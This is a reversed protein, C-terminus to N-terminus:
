FQALIENGGKNFLVIHAAQIALKEFEEGSVQQKIYANKNGDTSIVGAHLSLTNDKFTSYAFIPISCGGGLKELFLRETHICLATNEHNLITKFITKQPHQVTTQIALAGQGAPPVFETLPLIQRIYNDYGLRHIGAYAMLLADYQGEEMKKIRTQVNGRVDAVTHQPYYHKLFAVRRTSSTGIKLTGHKLSVEKHSILVDAPNERQTYAIVPLDEAIDTPVDKASHVAIDIEHNRLAQELEQTFLGKSGIKSLAVDQIKDGQTHIIVIEAMLGNKELQERVYNAQWLALASGRTGIRIIM